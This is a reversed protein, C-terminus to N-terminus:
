HPRATRTSDYLAAMWRSSASLHYMAHLSFWQSVIAFASRDKFRRSSTVLSPTDVCVTPGARELRRIFDYDEMLALPRLGGIADFVTRRVFIGSDGYYFGHKRIWAYFGNLWASFDDGGDFLLRFNGGPSSPQADLRALLADAAGDPVATDAHVFWLVEGSAHAAGAVLQPGRGLPTALVTAGADKAEQQSGDASGGDAVIVEAVHPQAILANVLPGIRGAENLVPIIISLRKGNSM